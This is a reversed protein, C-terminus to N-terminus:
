YALAPFRRKALEFAGFMLGSYMLTGALFNRMFPLGQLYCQVLGDWNKAFPLNTRLDLGTPSFFSMLDTLLWHAFSAAVAAILVNAITVKKLLQQGLFVILAFVAYVGYWGQYMIGYQGKLVILNVALDSLLLAALPFVYAKWRKSFYAGGFLGMAGIPTFASIASAEAANFLRIVAGLAIILLLVLLRPNIQTNNM